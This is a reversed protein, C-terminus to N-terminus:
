NHHRHIRSSSYPHFHCRSRSLRLSKWKVLIGHFSILLPPRPDCPSVLLLFENPHSHRNPDPHSPLPVHCPLDFSTTSYQSHPHCSHNPSLRQGCISYHDRHFLKQLLVKPTRPMPFIGDTRSVATPISKAVPVRSSLVLLTV